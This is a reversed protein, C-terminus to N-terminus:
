EAEKTVIFYTPINRPEAFARYKSVLGKKQHTDLESTDVNYKTFWDRYYMSSSSGGDLMVANVAGYSLLIDIIDNYTAGLSSASRGDTVIFIVTGDACQGIATRQSVALNGNRRNIKVNGDASSSILVNGYQFCVCDRIGLSDAKEKTMSDAVVMKDNADFGVFTRTTGDNWVCKGFSYTLGIPTAGDGMGGIDEFEGGNIAAAANYKDAVEFIRAGRTFNDSALGVKVRSPSKILLVYGKFTPGNVPEYILGDPNEAWRDSFDGAVEDQSVYEADVEDGSALISDVASKSLFLGPIWKTASAQKASLVLTDRITTGPGYCVVLCASVVTVIVALLATGVCLLIRRIVTGVTMKKEVNRRKYRKDQM